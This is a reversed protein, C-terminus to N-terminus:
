STATDHEKREHDADFQALAAHFDENSISSAALMKAFNDREVEYECDKTCNVM